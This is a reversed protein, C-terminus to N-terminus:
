MQIKKYILDYLDQLIALILVVQSVITFVAWVETNVLTYLPRAVLEHSDKPCM